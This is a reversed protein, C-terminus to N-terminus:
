LKEILNSLLTNILRDYSITIKKKNVQITIKEDKISDIDNKLNKVKNIASIIDNEKINVQYNSIIKDVEVNYYLYFNSLSKNLINDKFYELEYVLDIMKDSNNNGERYECYYKDNHKKITIFNIKRDRILDIISSITDNTVEIIM